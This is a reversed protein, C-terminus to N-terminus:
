SDPTAIQEQEHPEKSFVIVRHTDAYLQDTM